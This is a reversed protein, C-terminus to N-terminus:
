QKGQSPPSDIPIELPGGELGQIIVTGRSPKPPKAAKPPPPPLASAQAAGGAGVIGALAPNQLAKMVEDAPVSIKLRATTGNISVEPHVGTSPQKAEADRFMKVLSEAQEATATQASAEMSIQDSFSMGIAFGRLNLNIGQPIPIGPINPLQGAIWFDHGATIQKAQLFAVSQSEDPAAQSLRAIAAKLSAGSGILLTSDNVRYTEMKGAPSKGQSELMALTNPDLNGSVLILSDPNPSGNELLSFQIDTVGRFMNQVIAMGMAVQPNKTGAQDLATKILPSQLLAGVRLGGVLTAQPHAFRWDAPTQAWMQSALGLTLLLRTLPM